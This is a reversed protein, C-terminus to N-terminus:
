VYKIEENKKAEKKTITRDCGVFKSVLVFKTGFPIESHKRLHRKAAKYSRCSFTAPFWYGTYEGRIVWKKKSQDYYLGDDNLLFLFQNEMRM